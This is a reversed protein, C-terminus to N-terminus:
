RKWIMPTARGLSAMAGSGPLTGHVMMGALDALSMRSVLDTARVQPSLRWDEYPELKGDHNLDKFSLGDVTILKDKRVGLAPQANPPAPFAPVSLLTLLLACGSCKM